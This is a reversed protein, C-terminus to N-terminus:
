PLMEENRVRAAGHPEVEAADEIVSVVAVSFPDTEGFPSRVSRNKWIAVVFPATFLAGSTFVPIRTDPWGEVHLSESLATTTM